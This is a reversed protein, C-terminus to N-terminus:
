NILEGRRRTLFMLRGTEFIELIFLNYGLLIYMYGGVSSSTKRINDDKLFEDGPCSSMFILTRLSTIM